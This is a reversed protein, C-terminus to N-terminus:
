DLFFKEDNEEDYDDLEISHTDSDGYDVDVEQTDYDWFDGEIYEGIQKSLSPLTYSDIQYRRYVIQSETTDYYFSAPVMREIPSSFDGEKIKDYNDYAYKHYQITLLQNPLKIGFMKLVQMVKDSGGDRYLDFLDFDLEDEDYLRVLAKVIATEKQTLQSM